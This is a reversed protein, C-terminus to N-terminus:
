KSVKAAAAAYAAAAAADFDLVAAVAAYDVNLAAAVAAYVDSRAAAALAEDRVAAANLKPATSM